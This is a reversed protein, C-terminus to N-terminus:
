AKLKICMSGRGRVTLQEGIVRCLNCSGYIRFICRRLLGDQREVGQSDLSLSSEVEYHRAQLLQLPLVLIYSRRDNATTTKLSSIFPVHSLSM